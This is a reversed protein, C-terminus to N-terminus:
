TSTRGAPKVAKLEVTVTSIVNNYTESAERLQERTIEGSQAKDGWRKDPLMKVNEITFDVGLYIGLPTNAGGKAAWERNSAQSFLGLGGVTIARVHTPDHVFHDHRHHPVIITIKAGDRCVRYLEKIIGLYVKPDAGLHELTHSLMVEETSDGPWPWPLKELDVVADPKCAPENDVNLWGALKRNGCGLNLRLPKADPM